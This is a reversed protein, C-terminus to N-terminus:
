KGHAYVSVHRVSTHIMPSYDWNGWRHRLHLGALKAMLDLEAPWAYRTEFPHLRVSGNSLIIHTASVRQSVPDHVAADLRITEPSLTRTVVFQGRSFAGPDPVSVELVFQGDPKLARAASRFCRIQAEQTLLAFFTSFVVYILSYSEPGTDFDSFDGQVVRIDEGGPSSRLKRIMAPSADIGHVTIGRQCLPIAVRGTGIGLELVPGDGALEALAEVSADTEDAPLSAWRDYDDVIHDGYTSPDHENSHNM